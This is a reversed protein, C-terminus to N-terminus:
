HKPKIPELFLNFGQFHYGQEVNTAVVLSKKVGSKKNKKRQTGKVILGGLPL